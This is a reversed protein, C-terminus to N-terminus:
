QKTASRRIEDAHLELFRAEFGIDYRALVEATQELEDAFAPDNREEAICHHKLLPARAIACADAESACALWKNKPIILVEWHNDGVKRVPFPSPKKTQATM